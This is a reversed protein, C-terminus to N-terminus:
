TTGRGLLAELTHTARLGDDSLPFEVFTAQVHERGKVNLGGTTRAILMQSCIMEYFEMTAPHEVRMEALESGKAGTMTQEFVDDVITGSLRCAYDFPDYAIDYVGLQSHWGKFDYFDFDSWSPVARGGRRDQWLRVLDEFGPLAEPAIGRDFYEYTWGEFERWITM